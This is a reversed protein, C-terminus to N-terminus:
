QHDCLAERVLEIDARAKAEHVLADITPEIGSRAELMGVIAHAFSAMHQGEISMQLTEDKLAAAASTIPVLTELSARFVVESRHHASLSFRKNQARILDSLTDLKPFAHLRIFDNLAETTKFGTVELQFKSSETAYVISATQFDRIVMEDVLAAIEPPVYQIFLSPDYEEHGLAASTAYPDRTRIFLDLGVTKRLIRLTLRSAVAYIEDAPVNPHSVAFEPLFLRVLRRPMTLNSFTPVIPKGFGRGCELFLRKALPSQKSRLLNRLPTTIYILKRILKLSTDSLKIRMEGCREGKRYKVGVLYWFGNQRIPNVLEHNDDWLELNELFSDIIAPHELVLLAAFPYLSGTTPLGLEFATTTLPKPYFQAPGNKGHGVVHGNVEYLYAANLYRNPNNSENRKRWSMQPNREHDSEGSKAWKKRRLHRLWRQRVAFEAWGRILSISHPSADCLHAWLEEGALGEPISFLLGQRPGTAPQETTVGYNRRRVHLKRTGEADYSEPEPGPFRSLTHPFLGPTILHQLCFHRVHNRWDDLLHDTSAEQKQFFVWFDRWFSEGAHPEQLTSLRLDQRHAVFQALEQLGPLDAYRSPVFFDACASWLRETFERGFRRYFPYLPAYTLVGASNRLPWASWVWVAEENLTRSEFEDVLVGIEPQDIYTSVKITLPAVGRIKRFANIASVISYSWNSVTRPSRGDFFKPSNVAGLLSLLIKQAGLPSPKSSVTEDTIQLLCELAVLICDAYKARHSPLTAMLRSILSRWRETLIRFEHHRYATNKKLITM